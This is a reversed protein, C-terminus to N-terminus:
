RVRQVGKREMDIECYLRREGETEVIWIEERERLRKRASDM